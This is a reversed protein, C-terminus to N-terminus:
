WTIALLVYQCSYQYCSLGLMHELSTENVGGSTTTAITVSMVQSCSAIRSIPLGVSPCWAVDRVWDTHAELKEETVWSDSEERVHPFLLSPSSFLASPLLHSPLLFSPLSYAGQHWCYELCSAYSMASRLLVRVEM